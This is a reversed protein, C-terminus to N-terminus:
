GSATGNAVIGGSTSLRQRLKRLFHLIAEDAVVQDEQIRVGVDDDSKMGFARGPLYRCAIRRSERTQIADREAKGDPEGVPSAAVDPGAAHEGRLRLGIRRNWQGIALPESFNATNPSKPM